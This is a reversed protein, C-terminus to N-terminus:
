MKSSGSGKSAAKLQADLRELERDKEILKVRAGNLENQIEDIKASDKDSTRASSSYLSSSPKKKKEEALKSNIDKIEKSLKLNDTLLNEVKKRLVGTEGEAVELQVKLEAPSLEEGDDNPKGGITKPSPSRRNGKTTMKKLQNALSENEDELRSIKKRSDTSSEDAMNLQEKLDNEREISDQLDKLLQDEVSREVSGTRSLVPGTKAGTKGLALKMSSSNNQLDKVQQELRSNLQNKSDLDKELQRIKNMNELASSGGVSSKVKQELDSKEGTLNIIEKEAKKLKFQLVRCNKSAAEIDRKLHGM